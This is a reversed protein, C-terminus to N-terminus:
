CIGVKFAPEPEFQGPFDSIELVALPFGKVSKGITYVRSIKSCRSAYERMAALLEANSRYTQSTKRDDQNTRTSSVQQTRGRPESRAATIHFHSSDQLCLIITISIILLSVRRSMRDGMAFSNRLGEFESETLKACAPGISNSDRERGKETSKM